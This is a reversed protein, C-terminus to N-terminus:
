CGGQRQCGLLLTVRSPMQIIQISSILMCPYAFVETAEEFSVGHKEFNNTAKTEDWEFKV